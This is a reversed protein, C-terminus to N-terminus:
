REISGSLLPTVVCGCFMKFHGCECPALNANMREIEVALLGSFTDLTDGLGNAANLLGISQRDALATDSPILATERAYTM